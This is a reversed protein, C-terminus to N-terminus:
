IHILSLKISVVLKYKAGTDKYYISGTTAMERALYNRLYGEPDDKIVPIATTIVTDGNINLAASKYRCSSLFLALLSLIVIKKM